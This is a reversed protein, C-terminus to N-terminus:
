AAAVSNLELVVRVKRGLIDLLIAVRESDKLGEYLGLCRAFTGDIVRVTEGPVFPTRPPLRVFGSEERGRLEAIVEDKIPAPDDGNRVLRSVGITSEISRWPQSMLDFAVFLYRPFLAAAVTESRRAHRRQRLCRPLYIAFGQRQLHGAARAEAHPHTQVAYWRVSSATM